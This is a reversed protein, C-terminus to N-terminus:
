RPLRELLSQARDVMEATGHCDPCNPHGHCVCESKEVTLNAIYLKVAMRAIAQEHEDLKIIHEM